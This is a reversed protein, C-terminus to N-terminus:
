GAPALHAFSPPYEGAPRLASMWAPYPEFLLYQRVLDQAAAAAESSRAQFQLGAGGNLGQGPRCDTYVLTEFRATM